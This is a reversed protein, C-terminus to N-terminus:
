TARHMSVSERAIMRHHLCPLLNSPPPRKVTAHRFCVQRGPDGGENLADMSLRTGGDTCVGYSRIAGRSSALVLLQLLLLHLLVM